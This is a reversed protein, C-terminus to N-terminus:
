GFFFSFFCLVWVLVRLSERIFVRIKVNNHKKILYKHIDEVYSVDITEYSAFLIM